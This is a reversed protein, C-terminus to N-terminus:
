PARRLRSLARHVKRIWFCRVRERERQTQPVTFMEQRSHGVEDSRTNGCNTKATECIEERRRTAFGLFFLFLVHITVRRSTCTSLVWEGVHIGGDEGAFPDNFVFDAGNFEDRLWSVRSSFSVDVRQKRDGEVMVSSAMSRVTRKQAKQAMSSLDRVDASPRSPSLPDQTQPPPPRSTSSSMSAASTASASPSMPASALTSRQAFSPSNVASPPLRPSSAARAPDPNHHHYVVGGELKRISKMESRLTEYEKMRQKEYLLNSKAHEVLTSLLDAHTQVSHRALSPSLSSSIATLRATLLTEHRKAQSPLRCDAFSRATRHASDISLYRTSNRSRKMSRTVGCNRRVVGCNKLTEGNRFQQSSQPM